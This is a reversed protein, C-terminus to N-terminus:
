AKCFCRFYRLTEPSASGVLADSLPLACEYSGERSIDCAATTYLAVTDCGSTGAAKCVDECTSTTSLAHIDGCLGVHFSDLSSALCGSTSCSKGTDCATTCSYCHDGTTTDVCSGGCASSLTTTDVRCQFSISV